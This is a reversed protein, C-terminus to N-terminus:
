NLCGLRRLYRRNAPPEVAKQRVRRAPVRASALERRHFTISVTMLQGDRPQSVSPALPPGKQNSLGVAYCPPRKSTTAAKGDSSTGDLEIIPRVGAKNRPLPKNVRVFTLFYFNNQPDPQYSRYIVIPPKV